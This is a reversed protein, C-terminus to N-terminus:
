KQQKVRVCPECQPLGSRTKLTIEKQPVIGLKGYLQYTGNSIGRVDIPWRKITSSHM